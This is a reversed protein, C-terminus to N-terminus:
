KKFSVLMERFKRRQDLQNDFEEDSMTLTEAYEQVTQKTFIDIDDLESVADEFKGSLCCKELEGQIEALKSVKEENFELEFGIKKLSELVSKTRELAFEPNITTDGLSCIFSEATAIYYSEILHDVRVEKAVEVLDNSTLKKIHHYIAQPTVNLEAALQSVTMEKVRLLFVIKRRTDDALLQFAKPDKIVKIPKM